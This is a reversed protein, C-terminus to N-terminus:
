QPGHGSWQRGLCPVQVALRLREDLLRGGLLGFARRRANVMLTARLVVPIRPARLRRNACTARRLPGGVLTLRWNLLPDKVCSPPSLVAVSAIDDVGPPHAVCLRPRRCAVVWTLTPAVVTALVARWRRVGPVRTNLRSTRV